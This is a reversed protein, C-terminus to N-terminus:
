PRGARSEGEGRLLRLVEDHLHGNSTVLSGGYITREGELTTARGGAEEVLIQLPAVDWPQVVPDIAVDGAGDAVLAHQYFDGFGRTRRARELLSLFGRPPSAEASGGLNGYFVHAEQLSATRSISLKWGDLYAGEGRAASWRSRLAPASVLGAVIEGHEEVALLTAFVPIGRLFNWTADIPDVILRPEGREGVGGTEEGLFGLAPARRRCVRRVVHEIAHDANTVPSRDRKSRVHLGPERFWRLSVEDAGDAIEFLLDLWRAPGRRM